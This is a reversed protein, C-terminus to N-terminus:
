GKTIDVVMRKVSMEKQQLKPYLGWYYMTVIAGFSGIDTFHQIKTELEYAKGTDRLVVSELRFSSDSGWTRGIILTYKDFDVEPLEKRGMYAQQFDKQSNIVLFSEDDWNGQEFFTKSEIGDADWIPNHLEESFFVALLDSPSVESLEVDSQFVGSKAYSITDGANVIGAAGNAVDAISEDDRSCATFTAALGLFMLYFFLNKM